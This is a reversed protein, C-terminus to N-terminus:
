MLFLPTKGPRWRTQKQKRSTEPLSKNMSKKLNSSLIELLLPSALTLMDLSFLIPMKNQWSTLALTNEMMNQPFSSRFISKPTVQGSL